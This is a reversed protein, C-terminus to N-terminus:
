LMRSIMEAVIRNEEQNVFGYWDGCPNLDIFFHRGKEDILFEPCCMSLGLSDNLRLLSASVELPLEYVLWRIDQEDEQAERLSKGAFQDIEARYARIEKGVVVCRVQAVPNIPTQWQWPFGGLGTSDSNDRKNNLLTIAIEQRETTDFSISFPPGLVKRYGISSFYNHFSNTTIQPVLLGCNHATQMLPVKAEGREVNEIRGPFWRASELAFRIETLFNTMKQRLLTPYFCDEPIDALCDIRWLRQLYVVSPNTEYGDVLLATGKQSQVLEMRRLDSANLPNILLHRKGGHTLVNLLLDNQSDPENYSSGFILIM